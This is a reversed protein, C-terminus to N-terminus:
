VNAVKKPQPQSLNAIYWDMTNELGDM